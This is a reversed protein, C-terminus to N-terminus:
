FWSAPPSGLTRSGDYINILSGGKYGYSSVSADTVDRSVWLANIAGTTATIVESDLSQNLIWYYPTAVNDIKLSSLIGARSVAGANGCMRQLIMNSTNFTGTSIQTMVGSPGALSTTVTSGVRVVQLVQFGPTAVGAATNLQVTGVMTTVSGNANIAFFNDFTSSHGCPYFAFSSSPWLFRATLTFDGAIVVDSNFTALTSTALQTYNRINIGNDLSAYSTALSNANWEGDGWIKNFTDNTHVSDSMWGNTNFTPLPGYLRIISSAKMTARAAWIDEWVGSLNMANQNPRIALINPDTIGATNLQNFLAAYNTRFAARDAAVTGAQDNTGTTVIAGTCILAQIWAVNKVGSLWQATTQGAIAFNVIQLTSATKAVGTFANVGVFVAQATFGTMVISGTTNGSPNTLTFAKYPTGVTGAPITIPTLTGSGFQATFSVPTALQLFWGDASGMAFENSSITISELVTTAPKIWIATLNPCYQELTGVSGAGQISVIDAGSIAVGSGSTATTAPVARLWISSLKGVAVADQALYYPPAHLGGAGGTQSDNLFLQTGQLSAQTSGSAGSSRSRSRSRHMDSVM